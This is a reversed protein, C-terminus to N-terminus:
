IQSIKQTSTQKSSLPGNSTDFRLNAEYQFQFQSRDFTHIHHRPVLAMGIYLTSGYKTIDLYSVVNISETTSKLILEHLYINALRLHHIILSLLDDLYYRVSNSFRKAKAM